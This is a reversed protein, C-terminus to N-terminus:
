FFFVVYSDWWYWCSPSRTMPWETMSAFTQISYATLLLTALANANLSFFALAGLFLRSSALFPPSLLIINLPSKNPEQWGKQHRMRCTVWPAPHKKVLWHALSLSLYNLSFYLCLMVHGKGLNARRGRKAWIIYLHLEYINDMCNWDNKNVVQYWTAHLFLFNWKGLM